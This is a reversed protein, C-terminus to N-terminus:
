ILSFKKRTGVWAYFSGYWLDRGHFILGPDIEHLSNTFEDLSPNKMKRLADGFKAVALVCTRKPDNRQICEEFWSAYKEPSFWVWFVEGASGFSYGRGDAKPIQHIRQGRFRHWALYTIGFKNTLIEVKSLDNLTLISPHTPKFETKFEPSVPRQDFCFLLIAIGTVGAKLRPRARNALGNVLDQIGLGFSLAVLPLLFCGHRQAFKIPFVGALSAVAVSLLAIWLGAIPLKSNKGFILACVSLCMLIIGPQQFFQQSIGIIGKSVFELMGSLDTLSGPYIGYKVINYHPISGGLHLYAYVFLAVASILTPVAYKWDAWHRTKLTKMATPFYILASVAAIPFVSSYIAFCAAAAAVGLALHLRFTSQQSQFIRGALYLHWWLMTLQLAYGRIQVSSILFMTTSVYFAGVALSAFRGLCWVRCTFYCAGVGLCNLIINLMRMPIPDVSIELWSGLLWFYLPPHAFRRSENLIGGISDQIAIFYHLYEDLNIDVDIVALTKALSYLVVLVFGVLTLLDSKNKLRIKSRFKQLVDSQM